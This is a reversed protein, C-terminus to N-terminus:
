SATPASATVLSQMLLSLPMVNTVDKAFCYVQTFLQYTETVDVNICAMQLFGATTWLIPPPYWLYCSELGVAGVFPMTGVVQIQNDIPGAANFSMSILFDTAAAASSVKANVFSFLNTYRPDGGIQVTAVGGSADGVVNNEVLYYGLPSFLGDGALPIFTTLGTAPQAPLVVTASVAM